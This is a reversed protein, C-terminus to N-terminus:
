PNLEEIVSTSLYIVREGINTTRDAARELAHVIEIMDLVGEIRQPDIRALEILEDRLRDEYEDVRDDLQVLTHAMDTDQRLFAELSINLMKEALEAMEFVGSPPAVIMSRKVARKVRRAIGCAYDGIRELETAIAFVSGLLRLDSAVPQQTAILTTITEEVNHRLIDIQVDDDIVQAALITNWTELSRMARHLSHQAMSGLRLLDERQLELQHTFRERTM